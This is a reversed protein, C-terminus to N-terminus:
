DQMFDRSTEAAQEIVALMEAFAEDPTKRNVM